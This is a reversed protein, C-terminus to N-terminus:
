IKNPNPLLIPDNKPRYLDIVPCLRNRKGLRLDALDGIQMAIEILGQQQCAGEMGAAANSCRLNQSIGEARMGSQAIQQAPQGTMM